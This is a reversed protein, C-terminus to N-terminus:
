IQASPRLEIEAMWRNQYPGITSLTYTIGTIVQTWKVSNLWVDVTKYLELDDVANINQQVNWRLTRPAKVPTKNNTLFSSAISELFNTGRISQSQGELDLWYYVYSTTDVTDGSFWTSASASAEFQASTAYYRNAANNAGGYLFTAFMVASYANAPATATISTRLWATSTLTSATGTSTSITAGASDYWRIDTRATMSTQGVGGRQYVSATYQTSPSVIFAPTAGNFEPGGYQFIVTATQASVRGAAIYDGGNTTPQTTGSTLFNTAGTAMNALLQRNLVLNANGSLIFDASYSLAPDPLMNILFGDYSTNVDIAAARRGYTTISTSDDKSWTGRYDYDRQAVNTLIVSNSIDSSAYNISIDSYYALLAPSGTHSGDTFTVGSSSTAATLKVLGTRGTTGNTPSAITSYWASGPTSAVVLDLTGAIDSEGPDGFYYSTSSNTGVSVLATANTADIVNNLSSATGTFDNNGWNTTPDDAIRFQAVYSVWDCVILRKIEKQTKGRFMIETQIDQIFGSWVTGAAVRIRLWYGPLITNPNAYFTIQGSGVIGEVLGIYNERGGRRFAADTVYAAQDTWSATGTNPSTEIYVTGYLANEDISSV